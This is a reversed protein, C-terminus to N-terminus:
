GKSFNKTKRVKAKPTSTTSSVKKSNNSRAVLSQVESKLKKNTQLAAGVQAESASIFQRLSAAVQEKEYIAIKLKVATLYQKVNWVVSTLVIASLIIMIM